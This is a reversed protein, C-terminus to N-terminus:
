VRRRPRRSHCKKEVIRIISSILPALSFIALIPIEIGLVIIFVKCFQYKILVPSLPILITSYILVIASPYLSFRIDNKKITNILISITMVLLGLLAGFIQALTGFVRYYYQQENFLVGESKLIGCYFTIFLVFILMALKLRREKRLGTKPYYYFFTRFYANITNHADKCQQKLLEKWNESLWICFFYYILLTLGFIIICVTNTM